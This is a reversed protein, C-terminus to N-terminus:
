PPATVPPSKREPPPITWMNLATGASSLAGTEEPSDALAGEAITLNGDCMECKIIAM